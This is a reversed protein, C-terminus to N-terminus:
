VDCSLAKAFTNLNARMLSFYDEGEPITYSIPNISLTALGTERALTEGYAAISNEELLIVGIGEEAEARLEALTAVSPTDQTSLGAIAHITFKYEDSVYGFADHSTIVESYRCASLRNTYENDLEALEAQLTAANKQYVVANAPDAAVIQETLQGVMQSFLVPSLWTHPDYSGHEHEEDHSVEESEEDHSEDGHEDKHIDEEDHSENEHEDGHIGEGGEMNEEEAAHDHGGEHLALGATAIIVPINDATLRATVDDAWPEFGAGQLVVLDAQQLTVMDKTSPEFSHPDRGAGVNTVVGLDGVIQELAFQLPYFSTAITLKDDSQRDANSGGFGFYWGGVLLVAVAIIGVTYKMDM